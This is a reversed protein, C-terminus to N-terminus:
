QHPLSLNNDTHYGNNLNTSAKKHDFKRKTKKRKKNWRHKLFDQRKRNISHPVSYSVVIDSKKNYQNIQINSGDIILLYTNTDGVRTTSKGQLEILTKKM